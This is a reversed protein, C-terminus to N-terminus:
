RYKNQLIPSDGLVQSGGPCSMSAGSTSHSSTVPLLIASHKFEKLDQISSNAVTSMYSQWLLQTIGVFTPRYNLPVFSFSIFNAFPWLTCDAIWTSLFSQTMKDETRQAIDAITGGQKVSAFTLFLAISFPAYVVQDAICKLIVTKKSKMTSGFVRDIIRYWVHLCMGNMVVGLAGTCLSRKYDVGRKDSKPNAVQSIIDGVSFAFFGTCSNAVMPHKEFVFKTKMVFKNRAFASKAASLFVNSKLVM